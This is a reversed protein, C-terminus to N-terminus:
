GFAVATKKTTADGGKIVEGGVEEGRETDPLPSSTPTPTKEEERPQFEGLPTTRAALNM